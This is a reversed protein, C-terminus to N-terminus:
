LKPETIKARRKRLLGHVDLAPPGTDYFADDIEFMQTLYVGSAGEALLLDTRGLRYAGVLSRKRNDWVFLQVYVQDLDDGDRPEGSGEDYLRFVRERERSM